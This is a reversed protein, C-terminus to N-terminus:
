PTSWEEGAVPSANVRNSQYSESNNEDVATISYRYQKNNILRTDMFARQTLLTHNIRENDRYINYGIIDTEPNADWTIAIVTDGSVTSLGNPQAPRPDLPIVIAQSISSRIGYANTSITTISNNGESIQVGRLSFFGAYNAITEGQSAGNVFVEIFSGTEARGRITIESDVFATGTIPSIIEPPATVTTINFPVSFPSENGVYDMATVHYQYHRGSNVSDVYQNSTILNTNLRSANRYLNYGSIDLESNATWNLHMELDDQSGSLGTPAEPISADIIIFQSRHTEENGASDSAWYTLTYTGETDIQFPHSYAIWNSDNLCYWIQEIGSISDTSSLTYIFDLSAVNQGYFDINTSLHTDPPTIDVYATDTRTVTTIANTLSAIVQDGDNVHLAYNIADTMQSTFKLPNASSTFIGTNIDTETLVITLGQTDSASKVTATISEITLEDTNLTSENLTLIAPDIIRYVNKNLCLSGGLNIELPVIDFYKNGVTDVSVVSVYYSTNLDLDNLIYSRSDKDITDAPTLESVSQFLDNEIFILFYDLDIEANFGQWSIMARNCHQGAFQIVPNQPPEADLTIQYARIVPVMAINSTNKADSVNVHINGAMLSTLSINPTIYTDNPFITTQWTGGDPVIPHVGSASFMQIKPDTNPNMATTFQVTLQYTETEGVSQGHNGSMSKFMNNPIRYVEPNGKGFFTRNEYTVSADPEIQFKHGVAYTWDRTTDMVNDGDLDYNSVDRDLADWGSSEIDHVLSPYPAIDFSCDLADPSFTQLGIFSSPNSAGGPDSPKFMYVLQSNCHGPLLGANDSTSGLIDPDIYRILDFTIQTDTPNTITYVQRLYSGSRDGTDPDWVKEVTQTLYFNLNNEQFFSEAQDLSVSSFDIPDSSGTLTTVSDDSSILLSDYISDNGSYFNGVPNFFCDGFCGTTTLNGTNSEPSGSGVNIDGDENGTTLNIAFVPRISIITIVILQLLIKKNLMTKM